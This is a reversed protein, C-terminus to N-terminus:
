PRRRRDRRGLWRAVRETAFVIAGIGLLCVTTLSYVAHNLRDLNM